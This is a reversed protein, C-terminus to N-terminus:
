RLKTCHLRSAGASCSHDKSPDILSCEGSTSRHAWVLIRSACKSIEQKGHGRHCIIKPCHFLQFWSRAAIESTIPVGPNSLFSSGCHLVRDLEQAGSRDACSSCRYDMPRYNSWPRIWYRDILTHQLSPKTRLLTSSISIVETHQSQRTGKLRLKAVHLMPPPTALGVPRIYAVPECRTAENPGHDKRENKTGRKALSQECRKGRLQWTRNFDQRAWCTDSCEMRSRAARKSTAPTTCEAYWVITRTTM